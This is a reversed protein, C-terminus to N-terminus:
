LYIGRFVGQEQPADIGFRKMAKVVKPKCHGLLGLRTRPCRIDDDPVPPKGLLQLDLGDLGVPELDEKCGLITGKQRQFLLGRDLEVGLPQM